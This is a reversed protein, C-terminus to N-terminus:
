PRYRRPWALTTHEGLDNCATLLPSGPRSSEVPSRPTVQRRGAGVSQRAVHAAGETETWARECDSLRRMSFVYERYLRALISFSTRAHSTTLATERLTTTV